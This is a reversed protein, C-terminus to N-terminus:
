YSILREVFFLECAGNGRDTRSLSTNWRFGNSSAADVLYGQLHVVQGKKLSDLADHVTENAPIIHMNSSHTMIETESISPPQDWRLQFFRGGQSLRLQELIAEDSMPGWGLALDTPSLAAGPDFRYDLRSLVRAQLEFSARRTLEFGKFEFPQEFVDKQEPAYSVLVGPGHTVPRKEWHNWALVLTVILSVFFIREVSM